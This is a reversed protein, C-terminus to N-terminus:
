IIYEGIFILGLAGAGNFFMDGWYSFETDILFVAVTILTICGIAKTFENM